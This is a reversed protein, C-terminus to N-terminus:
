SNNATRILTTYHGGELGVGIHNVVAVLKYNTREVIDEKVSQVSISHEILIENNIKVNLGDIYVFRKLRIILVPPLEVIKVIKM